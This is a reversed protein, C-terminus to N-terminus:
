TVCQKLRVSETAVFENTQFIHEKRREVDANLQSSTKRDNIHLFVCM